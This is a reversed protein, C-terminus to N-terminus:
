MSIYTHINPGKRDIFISSFNGFMWLVGGHLLENTIINQHNEPNQRYIDLNRPIPSGFFTTNKCTRIKMYTYNAHTKDLSDPKVYMSQPDKKHPFTRITFQKPKKTTQVYRLKRHVYFWILEINVM